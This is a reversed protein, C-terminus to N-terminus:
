QADQKARLEDLRAQAEERSLLYIGFPGGDQNTIASPELTGSADNNWTGSKDLDLFVTWGQLGNDSGNMVGNSDLDEFLTGILTALMARRELHELALRRKSRDQALLRADRRSTRNTRSANSVASFLEAHSM